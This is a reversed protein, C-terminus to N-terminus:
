HGVGCSVMLVVVIEMLLQLFEVKIGGIKEFMVVVMVLLLCEVEVVM